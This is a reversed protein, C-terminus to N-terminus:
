GLFARLLQFDPSNKVTTKPKNIQTSAPAEAIDNQFTDYFVIGEHETTTDSMHTAYICQDIVDETTTGDQCEFYTNHHLIDRQTYNGVEDFQSKFTPAEGWQEDEKVIHDLVSPDWEL